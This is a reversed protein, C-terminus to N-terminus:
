GGPPLTFRAGQGTCLIKFM